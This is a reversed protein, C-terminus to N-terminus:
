PRRCEYIMLYFLHYM